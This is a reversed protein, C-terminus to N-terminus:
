ILEAPEKALIRNEGLASISRGKELIMAMEIMPTRERNRQRAGHLVYRPQKGEAILVADRHHRM